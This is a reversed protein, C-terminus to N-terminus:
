MAHSIELTEDVLLEAMNEIASRHKEAAEDNVSLSLNTSKALADKTSEKSLVIFRSTINYFCGDVFIMNDHFEEQVFEQDEVFGVKLHVRTKWDCRDVTEQLAKV